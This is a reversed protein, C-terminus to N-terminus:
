AERHRRKGLAISIFTILGLVIITLTTTGLVLNAFAKSDMEFAKAAERGLDPDMYLGLGFILAVQYPGIGGNSPVGMAISGLTFCVLVATMGDQAFIERTFPFAQFAAAMQFFYCGWLLATLLLWYWKHRMTAIGKFGDWMDRCFKKIRNVIRNKSRHRFFIVTAATLASLIVWTVPSTLLRQVSLYFDPYRSMFRGIADHGLFVTAVLFLVGTLLDAVRDAVVTGAVTAFGAKERQAVFGCRWVEGLRPFVLNVAYTGFISLVREGLPANVGVAELQLGWRMARFVNSMVLLGLMVAIWRFDCGQRIITLMESLSDDKFLVWCLGLSVVAPIIFKLVKSLRRRLRPKEKTLNM